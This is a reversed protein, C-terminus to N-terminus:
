DYGIQHRILDQKNMPLPCLSEGARAYAMDNWTTPIGPIAPPIEFMVVRLGNVHIVYIEIFTLKQNTHDRIEKKLSQLSAENDRYVSGVVMRSNTVGFVLWGAQMNRLNAENSLASFYGGVDNFHYNTRAEKFEVVENEPHRLMEALMDLLQQETYRM